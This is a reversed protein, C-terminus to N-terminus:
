KGESETKINFDNHVRCQHISYALLDVCEQYNDKLFAILDEQKIGRRIVGNIPILKFISGFHKRFRVESTELMALVDNRPFVRGKNYPINLCSLFTNLVYKGHQECVKKLIREKTEAKRKFRYKEFDANRKENRLAACTEELEKIKSELATKDALSELKRALEDRRALSEDLADNLKRNEKDKEGVTDLINGVYPFRYKKFWNDLHLFGKVYDVTLEKNEARKLDIEYERCIEFFDKIQPYDDIRLWTTAEKYKAEAEDREAAVRELERRMWALRENLENIEKRCFWSFISM